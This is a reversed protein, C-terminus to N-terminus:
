RAGRARPAEALGPPRRTLVAATLRGFEELGLEEPRAMEEIGSESLAAVAGDRPLGLRMLASRVTKRRQAFAERIVRFLSDEDVDVPAAERRDIRVLASEIGPAPWFVSAPVRREVRAQAHYAVRLSAAGFQEDGPAAALRDGVERQVMVLLRRIRPEEELARLVLRAGVNYPLNAVIVWPDPGAGLLDDWAAALADASRVTVNDFARLVEDLAPLLRADVEVAVVRAGTAALAVTLSGLGAGIELVRDGAGVEALGAIRSALSPEILFHQGLSKRPMVGHRRALARLAAPTLSATAPGTV